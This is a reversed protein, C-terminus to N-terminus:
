MGLLFFLKGTWQLVDVRNSGCVCDYMDYLAKKGSLFEGSVFDYVNFPETAFVSESTQSNVVFTVAM